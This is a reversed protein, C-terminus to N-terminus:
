SYTKSILSERHDMIHRMESIIINKASEIGDTIDIYVIGNIDSPIEVEKDYLIIIKGSERGFKGIFYGLELIVNQRARKQKKWVNYTIDDPTLMVFVVDINKRSIKELKEIITNGHSSLKNLILPERINMDHKLLAVLDGLRKNDHGHVIFSSIGRSCEGLVEKIKDVLGEPEFPKPLYHAKQMKTLQLLMDPTSTKATVFLIPTEPYKKRFRKAFELGNIAPMMIDTILLSIKDSSNIGTMADIANNFKLVEYEEELEFLSTSIM